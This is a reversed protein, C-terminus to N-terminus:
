KECLKCKSIVVQNEEAKAKCELLSNMSVCQMRSTSDVSFCPSTSETNYLVSLATPFPKMWSRVRCRQALLHAHMSLFEITESEKTVGYLLGGPEDTWPIRWAFLRSHTAMEEELFRGSGPILGVDGASAPPNKVRSGGPSCLRCGWSPDLVSNGM